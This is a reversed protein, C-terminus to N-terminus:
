SDRPSPSTYLLCIDIHDFIKNGPFKIKTDIIAKRIVFFGDVSKYSIPRVEVKKGNSHEINTIILTVEHGLKAHYKPLLNEQYGWGENYTANPAIHVIKM